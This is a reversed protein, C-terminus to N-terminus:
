AHGSAHVDYTKEYIVEAGQRLLANIVRTVRKENGPIPSASLIIFDNPTVTIKRHDNMAMRTLASM